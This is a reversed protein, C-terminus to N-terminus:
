LITRFIKGFAQFSDLCIVLVASFRQELENHDPMPLKQGVVSLRNSSNSGGKTESGKSSSSSSVGGMVVIM